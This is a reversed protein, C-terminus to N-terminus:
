EPSLWRGVVPCAACMARCSGAVNAHFDALLNGGPSSTVATGRIGTATPWCRGVGPWSPRSRDMGGLVACVVPDAAAMKATATASAGELLRAVMTALMEVHGMEETAVDMILDKYKGPMRCNWGQFLYQM